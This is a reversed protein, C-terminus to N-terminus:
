LYPDTGAAVYRAAAVPDATKNKRYPVMADLGLIARLEPFRDILEPPLDEWLTGPRMYQRFWFQALTVRLGPNTRPKSGHFTGSHWIVLSGAEGKVPVVPYPGTTPDPDYEHPLVARGFRFSGPVLVTPGDADEAYDTCLWSANVHHAIHGAGLPVGQQDTHLQRRNETTARLLSSSMGLVASKGVLLQVLARAVPNLAAEVFVDDQGLLESASMERTEANSYVKEVNAGSASQPFTASRYDGFSVGCCEETARIVADRLRSVWAADVQLKEPPVVTFGYTALDLAHDVVGFRAIDQRISDLAPSTGLSAIDM